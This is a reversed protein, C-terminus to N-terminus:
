IAQLFFRILTISSRRFCPADMWATVSTLPTPNRPRWMNFTYGQHGMLAATHSQRLSSGLGKVGPAARGSSRQRPQPHTLISVDGHSCAIGWICAERELPLSETVSVM